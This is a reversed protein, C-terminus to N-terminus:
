PLETSLPLWSKVVDLGAMDTKLATRVLHDYEAGSHNTLSFIDGCRCKYITMAQKFVGSLETDLALERRLLRQCQATVRRRSLAECGPCSCPIVADVFNACLLVRAAAVNLTRPARAM